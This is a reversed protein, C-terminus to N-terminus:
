ECRKFLCVWAALLWGGVVGLFLPWVLTWLVGPATDEGLGQLVVARLFQLAFCHMAAIILFWAISWAHHRLMRWHAWWARGLTEGHLTLWAQMSAFLLLAVALSLRAAHLWDEMANPPAPWGRAFSLVMPLEILLVQALLVLGAWKAAAGLRRIAVERLAARDFSLGRVWAYAHLILYAQVGVGFVYEFLAGLSAVAPGWQAIWAVPIWAPQFYLIAKGITALAGVLVALVLLWAWFGFRRHLVMFLQTLSRRRNLLLGVAALVAVPFTTVVNNFLGAVTELAPLISARLGARIEAAPLWWLSEPAGHLWVAPDNWGPRLWVLQAEGRTQAVLRAALLFLANAFALWALTRWLVPYRRMCRWGDGLSARIPNFRMLLFYGVLLLGIGLEWM